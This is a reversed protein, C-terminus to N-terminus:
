ELRFVVTENTRVMKPVGDVAYKPYNYRKVTEEAAAQLVDPGSVAKASVVKGDPGILVVLKVVGTVGAKKAEKPYRPKDRKAGDLEPSGEAIEVVEVGNIWSNSGPAPAASSGFSYNMTITTDVELPKGDIDDFPAYTWQRAAAIASPLLVEPGCLPEVREMTGDKGIVAHLIVVGFIHKKKAEKPYVPSPHNIIRGSMFSGPLRRADRAVSGSAPVQAPAQAPCTASVAASASSPTPADQAALSGLAIAWVVAICRVRM